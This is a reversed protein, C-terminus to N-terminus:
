NYIADIETAYKTYVVPRKLKLTPTLEGGPVSFDGPLITWKKTQQAASIAEVNAKAVGADLYATWAASKQADEVTKADPDVKTSPADLENTFGGLGDPKCALTFVASVFKRRDGIMMVNAIGPLHKKLASELLVPAVNEGGATVLIEKIRGIITYFGEDDIKGIDGTHLWGESDIADETKEKNYRFVCIPSLM